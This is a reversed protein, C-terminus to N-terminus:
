IIKSILELGPNFLRVVGKFDITPVVRRGGAWRVIKDTHSAQEDINIQKYSLSRDDFWDKLTQCEGCWTSCYFTPRPLSTKFSDDDSFISKILNNSPNFLLAKIKDQGIKILPFQKKDKDVLALIENELDPNEDLSICEVNLGLNDFAIDIREADRSQENYYYLYIQYTDM